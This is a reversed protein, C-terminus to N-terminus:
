VTNDLLISCVASLATASLKFGEVSYLNIVDAFYFDGNAYSFEDGSFQNGDQSSQTVKFQVGSFYNKELGFEIINNSKITFKFKQPIFRTLKGEKIQIAETMECIYVDGVIAYSQISIFSLIFILFTKKIM